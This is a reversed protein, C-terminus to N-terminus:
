QENKVIHKQGKRGYEVDKIRLDSYLREMSRELDRKNYGKFRPNQVMMKPAYNTANKSSSLNRGQTEFDDLAKLFAEDIQKERQEVKLDDIIGGSGTFQPAFVGNDFQLKIEDGARAYNSKKRTLVRLDTNDQGEEEQQHKLYLRSRVSNHWATNGGDGRGSNMGSASPHVCVMVAGDITIALGNLANIFQRVENRSNEYGGFTDAATDVVIFQAGFNLAQREIKYYLETLYGQAGSDFNMLINNKGVGCHLRMNGLDCLDCGYNKNIADQRRHLEDKTDECFIGLTKVHDARMGLWMGGISCATLLMQTLQSKGTGGDGYLSTVHHYPIWENIIWRREPIPLGQWNQPNIFSEAEGQEALPRPSEPPYHVATGLEDLTHEPTQM